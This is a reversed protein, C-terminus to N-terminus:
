LASHEGVHHYARDHYVLPAVDAPESAQLVLVSVLYSAGVATRQVIEGQMWAASGDLVPEGSPLLSFGGHAFKDIGSTAFRASLDVQSAALFSIALHEARALPPWSSSRSDISFALVPPDASVSIVSTATFGYLRDADTFTIVAVGSPHRRFVSKFGAPSVWDAQVDGDGPTAAALESM